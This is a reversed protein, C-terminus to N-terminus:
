MTRETVIINRIKMNDSNCGIMAISLGTIEKETTVRVLFRRSFSDQYINDYTGDDKMIKIAEEIERSFGYEYISGDSSIIAMTLRSGVNSSDVVYSLDFQISIINNEVVKSLIVPTNDFKNWMWGQDDSELDDLRDESFYAKLTEKDSIISLKEEDIYIVDKNVIMDM